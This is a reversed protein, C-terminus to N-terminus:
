SSEIRNLEIRDVRTFHIACACQGLFLYQTAISSAEGRGLGGIKFGKFLDILHQHMDGCVTIDHKFQAINVNPEARLLTSAQSVISLAAELTLRGKHSLHEILAPLNPLGTKANFVHDSGIALAYMPPAIVDKVVRDM